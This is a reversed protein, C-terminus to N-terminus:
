THFIQLLLETNLPHLQHPTRTLQRAFGRFTLYLERSQFAGVELGRDQHTQKAAQIYTKVASATQFSRSLFQAYLSLVNATAPFPTLHFYGCFLFYSRIQSCM